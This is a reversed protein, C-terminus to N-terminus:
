AIVPHIDVSPDMQQHSTERYLAFHAAPLCAALGADGALNVNIRYGQPRSVLSADRGRFDRRQGNKSGM